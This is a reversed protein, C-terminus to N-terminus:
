LGNKQRGNATIKERKLPYGNIYTKGHFTVYLFGKERGEWGTHASTINGTKYATNRRTKNENQCVPLLSGKGFFCKVTAKHKIQKILM